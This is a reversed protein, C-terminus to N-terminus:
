IRGPKARTYFKGDNNHRMYNSTKKGGGTVAALEEFALEVLKREENETKKM